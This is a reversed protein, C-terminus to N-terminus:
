IGKTSIWDVFRSRKESDSFWWMAPGPELKFLREFIGPRIENIKVQYNGFIGATDRALDIPHKVHTAIALLVQPYQAVDKGFQYIRKASEADVTGKYPEDVLFLMKDDIGASHIDALLEAMTKKEAMFTSLGQELDERPALATRIASFLTQQAKQAPVICWSQPLIAMGLTKLITSKGGGNPGTIIIKGPQDGIGLILDNTVAEKFPLLPLWADRYDLFPIPSDVFEPFSFVVPQDQSEKYLQAISCYADLLAISHLLPILTKKKQTIELHMTLVHGRSYFYDSKKLFRKTLLNSILQKREIGDDTYENHENLYSRLTPAQKSVMEQLKQIADIGQAVDSVRGQLENLTRYMSFIRQGTSIIANGWQYDFFLTPITAGIFSGLKGFSPVVGAGISPLGIEELNAVYGQLLIKYRDGWSGYGFAKIYDKYTYEKKAETLAIPTPSHQMLPVTLGAKIGGIIDLNEKKGHIWQQFELSLGGLALASVLYKWSNFFELITSANLALSSKNLEKIGFVTYYFQQANQNLQDHKDWYALLSKESKKVRKLQEQFIHMEKEHEVLFMIIEKRRELEKEDAIPHLLQVLGWRGFSTSSRDLITVLRDLQLEKWECEGIISPAPLEYKVLNLVHEANESLTSEAYMIRFSFVFFLIIKKM